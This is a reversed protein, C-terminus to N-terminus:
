EREGQHECRNERRHLEICVRSSTTHCCLTRLFTNNSRLYWAAVATLGICSQLLRPRAALGCAAESAAEADRLECLFVHGWRALQLWRWVAAAAAVLRVFIKRCGWEKNGNAGCTTRVHKVAIECTAARRRSCARFVVAPAPFPERLARLTQPLSDQAQHPAGATIASAAPADSRTEKTRAPQVSPCYMRQRGRAPPGNTM